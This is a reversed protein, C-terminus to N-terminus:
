GSGLSTQSTVLAAEAAMAPCILWRCADLSCATLRESKCRATPRWVYVVARLVSKDRGQKDDAILGQM